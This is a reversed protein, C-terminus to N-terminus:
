NIFFIFLVPAPKRRTSSQNGMGLMEGFAGYEDDDMMMWPQSLLGTSRKVGGWFVPSVIIFYASLIYNKKQLGM